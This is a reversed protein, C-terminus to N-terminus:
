KGGCLEQSQLWEVTNVFATELDVVPDYGFDKKAAKINFFHSFALQGAVFRTMPPQYSWPMFKYIMEMMKGANYATKFPIKASVPDINLETLMNNVWGWLNVPSDDSIFYAKRFNRGSKRAFEAGKIHAEAANVVYTLDVFNDGHGIIKLKGAKARAIIQPLLHPDRPGWILHPRLIVASLDSWDYSLVEREARAKTEPYFALYKKPYELYEDANEVDELPSYTASPSSTYVLTRVDHKRCADLVNQTGKVNVDYYLKRPGWIGAKAATHIVVSCNRVAEMVGERNRIDGTFVDVGKAALEDDGRRSYSIINKCNLGILREVIYKGLFGSGGFVIVSEDKWNM